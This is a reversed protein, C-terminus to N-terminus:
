HSASFAAAVSRALEPDLLFRLASKALIKAGRLLEGHVQPSACVKAFERTHLAVVRGETVDLVPQLAPCRYSVNGVDTSDRAEPAASLTAGMERFCEALLAESPANPKMDDFSELFPEWSVTTGTALAAGRACDFVRSRLGELTRRAPARFEVRVAAREPVINPAQGGETIIGSIRTSPLVHQRLMDLAHLFLQAGGLANVGEWPAAAAHASKGLFVFEYGDLALARYPVYSSGGECHIMLALDVADFAGRKAMLAKAGYSEEAPTGLVRVEGPLRDAVSALAGAALLSMTGHVNHGCAHGIEPLADYEALLAVVPGGKAGPLRAEYATEIEWRPSQVEFGRQRLFEGHRRVAETEEGSVEPHAAMWDSLAFACEADSELFAEVPGWLEEMTPM